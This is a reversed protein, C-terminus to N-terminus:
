FAQNILLLYYCLAWSDCLYGFTVYTAIVRKRKVGMISPNGQSSRPLIKCLPWLIALTCFPLSINGFTEVGQTPHVFTVSSLHIQSLSSGFTLYDRKHLFSTFLVTACASCKIAYFTHWDVKSVLLCKLLLNCYINNGFPAPFLIEM